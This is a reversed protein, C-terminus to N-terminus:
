KFLAENDTFFKPSTCAVCPYSNGVCWNVGDNWISNYCNARSDPGKCGKARLCGNKQSPKNWDYLYRTRRRSCNRHLKSYFISTPRNYWDLSISIDNLHKLVTDYFWSPHVPCGPLNIVPKSVNHKDLFFEAGRGESPSKQTIGGKFACSGVALVLSANQAAEIFKDEFPVGAVKLFRKDASPISGELVLVYGGAKIAEHLAYESVDGTGSMLTEHYWLNITDLLIDKPDPNISSLVSETCGTCDQAEMWIIAPKAADSGSAFTAKSFLLPSLGLSIAAASSKKLFDRRNIVKTNM